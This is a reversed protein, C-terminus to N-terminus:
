AMGSFSQYFVGVVLDRCIKKYQLLVFSKKELWGARQDCEDLRNWDLTKPIRHLETEKNTADFVQM